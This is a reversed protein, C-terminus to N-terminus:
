VLEDVYLRVYSSYVTKSPALQMENRVKGSGTPSSVMCSERTNYLAHFCAGQISNFYRFEFVSHFCYPLTDSVALPNFNTEQELSPAVVSNM